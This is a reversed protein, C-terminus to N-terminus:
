FPMSDDAVRYWAGYTETYAQRRRKARRRKDEEVDEMTRVGEDLYRELIARLYYFSPRPARATIELADLIVPPRIGAALFRSLDAAVIGNFNGLIQTYYDRIVEQDYVSVGPETHYTTTTTSDSFVAGESETEVKNYNNRIQSM